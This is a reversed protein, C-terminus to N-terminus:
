KLTALLVDVEQRTLSTSLQDPPRPDIRRTTGSRKGARGKRM